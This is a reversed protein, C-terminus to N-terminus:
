HGAPLIQVEDPNVLGFGEVAHFAQKENGRGIDDGSEAGPGEVVAVVVIGNGEYEAGAAGGNNGVGDTLVAVVSETAIDAQGVRRGALPEIFVVQAKDDGGAAEACHRGCHVFAAELICGAPGADAVADIGDAAVDRGPGLFHVAGDGHAIGFADDEVHIGFGAFCVPLVAVEDALVEHGAM